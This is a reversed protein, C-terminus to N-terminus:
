GIGAGLLEVLGSVTFLAGIYLSVIVAKTIKGRNSIVPFTFTVSVTMLVIFSVVFLIKSFDM